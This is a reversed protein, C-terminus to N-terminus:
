REAKRACLLITAARVTLFRYGKSLSYDCHSILIYIFGSNSPYPRLGFYGERRM